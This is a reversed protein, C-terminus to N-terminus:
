SRKKQEYDHLAAELEELAAAVHKEDDAELAWLLLRASQAFAETQTVVVSV